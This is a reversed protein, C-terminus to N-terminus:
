SKLIECRHCHLIDYEPIYLGLEYRVPSVNSGRQLAWDTLEIHFILNARHHSQLSDDELINRLTARLLVSLRSSNLAEMMLTVLIPLSPVVNATVLLRRV